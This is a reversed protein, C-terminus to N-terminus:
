ENDYGYVSAYDAAERRREDNTVQDSNPHMEEIEQTTPVRGAASIFEYVCEKLTLPWDRDNISQTLTCNYSLAYKTFQSMLDRNQKLYKEIEEDSTLLKFNDDVSLQNSSKGFSLKTGYPKVEIELSRTSVTRSQIIRIIFKTFEKKQDIM